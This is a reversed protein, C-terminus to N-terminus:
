DGIGPGPCGTGAWIFCRQKIEGFFFFYSSLETMWGAPMGMTNKIESPRGPMTMLPTELPPPHTRLVFGAPGGVWRSPHHNTFTFAFFFYKRASVAMQWPLPHCLLALCPLAPCLLALCAPNRTISLGSTSKKRRRRKAGGPEQGPVACYTSKGAPPAERRRIGPWPRCLINIKGGAASRAAEVNWIKRMLSESNQFPVYGTPVVLVFERPQGGWSSLIWVSCDRNRIMGAAMPSSPCPFPQDVKIINNWM